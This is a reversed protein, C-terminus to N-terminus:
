VTCVAGDEGRQGQMALEGRNQDATHSLSRAIALRGQLTGSTVKDKRGWFSSNAM